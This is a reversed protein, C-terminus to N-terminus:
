MKWCNHLHKNSIQFIIANEGDGNLVSFDSLPIAKDLSEAFCKAEPFVCELVQLSDNNKCFTSRRLAQLYSAEEM